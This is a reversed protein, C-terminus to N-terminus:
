LFPLYICEKVRKYNTRDMLPSNTRSSSESETGISNSRSLQFARRSTNKPSSSTACRAADDTNSYQQQTDTGEEAMSSGETIVITETSTETSFDKDDMKM